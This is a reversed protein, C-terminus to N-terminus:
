PGYQQMAPKAALCVNELHQMLHEPMAALSSVLPRAYADAIQRVARLCSGSAAALAAASPPKTRSCPPTNNGINVVAGTLEHCRQQQQHQLFAAMVSVKELLQQSLQTPMLTDDYLFLPCFAYAAQSQRGINYNYQMINSCTYQKTQM